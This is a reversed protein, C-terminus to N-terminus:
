YMCGTRGCIKRPTPAAYDAVLPQLVRPLTCHAVIYARQQELYVPLQTRLRHGRACLEAHKELLKALIKPPADGALAMTQLLVTLECDNADEDKLWSWVTSSRRSSDSVTAGGKTLLWQVVNLCGYHAAIQLPTAGDAAAQSFDAGLEKILYRVIDVHGCQAAIMLATGIGNGQREQNVDAGLEEVLCRVADLYGFEAAIMLATSGTCDTQSIDAGLDKVLCRVNEVCGYQAAITLATTGYTYRAQNVDAGCASRDSADYVMWIVM